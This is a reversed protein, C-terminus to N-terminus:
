SDLDINSKRTEIIRERQLFEGLESFTYELSVFEGDIRTSIVIEYNITIGYPNKRNGRLFNLVTNRNGTYKIQIKEIKYRRYNQAFVSLIDSYVIGPISRPQIEVEADKFYGNEAFEISYRERNLRAKAEISNRTLGEEKFWRVRSDFTLSDIFSLAISPVDKRTIGFEREFKFQSFGNNSFLFFLSFVGILIKM